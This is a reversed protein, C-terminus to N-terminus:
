SLYVGKNNCRWGKLRNNVILTLRLGLWGQKILKALRILLTKLSISKSNYGAV